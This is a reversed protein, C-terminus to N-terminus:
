QKKQLAKGNNIIRAAFFIITLLVSILVSLKGVWDGHKVYFTIIKNPSVQFNYANEEWGKSKFSANGDPLILGSIGTNACRIVPKRTEIARLKGFDFHQRYAPSDGWWGDNTIVCIVEAGAKVYDTVFEGFLSEYCIVPAIQTKNESYFVTRDKQPTLSGVYGGFDRILDSLWPFYDLGPFTEVGIVLKSKHYIQISEADDIQIVSNYVRVISDENKTIITDTLHIGTILSIQPHENVFNILRSIHQNNRFSKMSIIEPVATEPFIVYDTKVSIKKEALEILRDVQKNFSIGGYKETYPNINPQVVVFEIINESLFTNKNNKLIMKSLLVPLIVLLAFGTFLIISKTKGRGSLNKLIIFLMVNIAMIWFSGGLIGTFEYWQVIGTNNFFANGLSLGPWQFPWNHHFYEFVIFFFIMAIWGLAKNKKILIWAAFVPLSMFFSNILPMVIGGTLSSLFIWWVSGMHYVFFCIWISSFALSKQESSLSDIRFFLPIFAPFLFLPAWVSHYGLSLLIGSYVPFLFQASIFKNFGKIM